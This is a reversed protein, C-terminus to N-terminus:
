QYTEIVAGHPTNGEIVLGDGREDATVGIKKLETALAELRDSEKLRLHLCNTIITRGPRLAALVALTPVMDPMAGLDFTYEGSPLPGGM